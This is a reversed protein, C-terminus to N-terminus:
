IVPSLKYDNKEVSSGIQSSASSDLGSGGVRSSRLFFEEIEELTLGKTEPVRHYIFYVAGVLIIAYIYFTAAAGIVELEVAFFFTMVTNWFFNTVVALSVAKGRVELPFIESILLWSIPGFGVQYGGIYVFLSILILAKQMTLGSVGCCTCDTSDDTCATACNTYDWACSSICTSESLYLNCEAASTYPFLFATGLALLAVLMLSCGIFLLLKRGHRDVTFTAFLTAVLKFVSVLISAFTSMGVDEFISDAYYLVSPQGTVQQFFVLGVGAVLAPWVSPATLRRYDDAFSADATAAAAKDAVDRIADLESEPVNPTVFRLAQRAESIRGKLALWRASYPLYFIGCFMVISMPIAWGSSSDLLHFPRYFNTILFIDVFM